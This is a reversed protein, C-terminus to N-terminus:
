VRLCARLKDLLKDGIGKVNLLDDLRAFPRAAVIAAAVTKPLGKVAALETASATNVCVAGAPAAAKAAAKRAAPKKEAAAPAAVAPAPAAAEEVVEAVPAVVADVVEAVPAATETPISVPLAFNSFDRTAYSEGTWERLLLAVHWTGAPRATLPLDFTLNDLGQGGGLVGLAATALRTGAPEGAGYPASLAWLELSLSGSLNDAARPNEVRDAHVTVHHQDLGFGSSGILRPQVFRETRPFRATDCITDFRGDRGSALALVMVHEGQGAPPLATAIADIWATDFATDPRCPLEAVKIGAPVDAAIDDDCAWLQLAWEGAATAAPNAIQLEANLHVVDGDFRYGHTQDLRLPTDPTAHM